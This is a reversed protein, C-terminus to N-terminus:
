VPKPTASGETRQCTKWQGPLAADRGAVFGTGVWVRGSEALALPQM